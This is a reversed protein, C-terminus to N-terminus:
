KSGGIQKQQLLHHALRVLRGPSSGLSSAVKRPSSCACPGRKGDGGCGGGTTPGPAGSAFDQRMIRKAPLCSSRTSRKPWTRSTAPRPMCCIPMPSLASRRTDDDVVPLHRFHLTAMHEELSELSDEPGITFLQRTMLDRAM